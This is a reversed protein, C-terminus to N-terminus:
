NESTTPHRSKHREQRGDINEVVRISGEAIRRLTFRDKPWEVSGEGRFAMGNPHRLITRLEESTPEVRVRPVRRADALARMREESARPGKYTARAVQQQARRATAAGGPILPTFPNYVM